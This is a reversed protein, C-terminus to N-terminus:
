CGGRKETHFYNSNSLGLIHSSSIKRDINQEPWETTNSEKLGWPNYSVLSRQRRSKGPLFVPTLQWKRRDTYKGRVQRM